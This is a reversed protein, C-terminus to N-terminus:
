NEKLNKLVEKIKPQLPPLEEQVVTWIIELDVGHYEHILKDRMGSMRKWPISPYKERMNSPIKKAAEGLIELSRVVANVTRKDKSFEEFDMGKTFERIEKISELIDKVYDYCDRKM